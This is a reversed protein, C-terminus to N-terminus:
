SSLSKNSGTGAVESLNMIFTEYFEFLFAMDPDSGGFIKIKGVVLM